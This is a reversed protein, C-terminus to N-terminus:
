IADSLQIAYNSSVETKSLFRREGTNIPNVTIRLADPLDVYM